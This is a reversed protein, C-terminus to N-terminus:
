ENIQKVTSHTLNYFEKREEVAFVSLFIAYVIYSFVLFKGKSIKTNKQNVYLLACAYILSGLSVVYLSYYLTMISLTLLVFSLLYYAHSVLKNKEM